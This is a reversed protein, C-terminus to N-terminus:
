RSENIVEFHKPHVWTTVRKGNTSLARAQVPLKEGIWMVRIRHHFDDDESVQEIVLGVPDAGSFHRATDSNQFWGRYRVMDGVNM